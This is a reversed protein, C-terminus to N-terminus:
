LEGVHVRVKNERGKSFAYDVAKQRNTDVFVNSLVTITAGTTVQERYVADVFWEIRYESRTQQIYCPTVRYEILRTKM